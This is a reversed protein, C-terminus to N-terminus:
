FEEDRVHHEGTRAREITTFSGDTYRHCAGECDRLESVNYFITPTDVKKHEDMDFDNAHCAACDPQYSPHPWILTEMNGTHCDNCELARRHDGPYGAGTHVYNAPQWANVSHCQDCDLTTVFHGSDKGQAMIGNHCSSCSGTILDHDFNAPIWANSSHCDDCEGSTAIHNAHKGTASVGNHCSSCAQMINSHDFEAPSWARTNHCTDCEESTVLHEPNKGTAQTGNHCSSCPATIGDHNFRAITWIQTTHCTDCNAQTIPHTDPKGPAMINNHCANCTGLTQSHEVRHVTQWTGSQHCDECAQTSFIHNLPKGGGPILSAPGHCGSCDTPSGKFRGNIHCTECEVFRHFGALPFRTSDHDFEAAILTGTYALLYILLTSM